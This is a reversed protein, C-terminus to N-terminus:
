LEHAGERQYHKITNPDPNILVLGQNADIILYDNEKIQNIVDSCVIGPINIGRAIIGSHQTYFGEKSIFGKTHSQRLDMIISPKLNNLVLITDEIEESVVEQMISNLEVKVKDTADLIDVIRGLMYENQIQNFDKLVSDVAIEYATKASHGRQIGALTSQVLIPDNVIYQHSLFIDSIREGFDEKAKQIQVDLESSVSEMALRFLQTQDLNESTSKNHKVATLFRAKGMAIGPSIIHSHCKM